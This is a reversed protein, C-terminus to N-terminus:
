AIPFVYPYGVSDVTLMQQWVM